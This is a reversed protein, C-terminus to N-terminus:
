THFRVRETRAFGQVLAAAGHGRAAPCQGPAVGPQRTRASTEAYALRLKARTLRAKCPTLRAAAARERATEARGTQVRTVIERQEPLPPLPIQSGRLEESDIGYEM